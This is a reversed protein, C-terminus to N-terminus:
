EIVDVGAPAAFRFIAPDLKPNREINRFAYRTTQGFSDRVEMAAPLGDKFGIRIKDFGSDPKRPAAELWVLGEASGAEKLAFAVDLDPVGFLLAAPTAGLADSMRRVTVQRLDVDYFHVKDGDAVVLQEFPKLVSWRFKGPRSFAFSGTSVGTPRGAAALTQQSFEGKASRTASSFARLDDIAGARASGVSLMAGMMCTLLAVSVRPRPRLGALPSM